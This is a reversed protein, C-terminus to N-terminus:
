QIIFDNNAHALNACTIPPAPLLNLRTPEHGRHLYPRFGHTQPQLPCGAGMAAPLTPAASGTRPAGPRRQFNVHSLADGARATM